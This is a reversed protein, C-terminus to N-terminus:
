PVSVKYVQQGIHVLVVQRAPLSIRDGHGTYLLQGNLGYVAAGRVAAQPTLVLTRGQLRYLTHSQLVPSIGSVASEKVHQFNKWSKAEQYAAATGAPVWLETEEYTSAAFVNESACVPPEPSTVTIQRLATCGDFARRGIKELGEPLVLTNLASCNEFAEFQIQKLQAPLKVETLAICNIFAYSGIETLGDPMTVSQLALCDRFCDNGMRELSAPLNLTMLGKCSCFAGSGITELGEPLHISQLGKQGYFASTAIHRTDDKLRLATGEPISGKYLMAVQGAYIMGQPQNNLWPTNEFVAVGINKLTSSFHVEQLNVCDIFAEDGITELGENFTIGTITPCEKFVTEDMETVRYTKGKEEITEPLVLHGYEPFIVTNAMVQVVLYKIEATGDKNTKYGIGDVEVYGAWAQACAVLTLLM